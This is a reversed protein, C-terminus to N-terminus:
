PMWPAFSIGVVRGDLSQLRAVTQGWPETRAAHILDLGADALERAAATLPWVGFPRSGGVSESHRHDDGEGSELPLGLANVYVLASVDPDASIVAVSARVRGEHCSGTVPLRGRARVLLLRRPDFVDWTYTATM